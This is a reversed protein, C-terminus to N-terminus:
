EGEGRGEIKLELKNLRQRIKSSNDILLAQKAQVNKPGTPLQNVNGRQIQTLKNFAELYQVGAEVRASSNFTTRVQQYESDIASFTAPSITQQNELASLKADIQFLARGAPNLYQNIYILAKDAYDEADAQNEIKTETPGYNPTPVKDNGIVRTSAADLTARNVTNAAPVPIDEQKFEAPIKTQVLNVAFAGDRVASSFAAQVSGTADGPIPLGKAFAEASPLDKAANLAMGALGQSSLNKVPVGVAALGAVGKAMLDQQIQSQKPMNKLLDAASKIGDKGTWVAPSKIVDAFVNTGAALLARTGPKVYGATELQGADLGFSGLGKTNSLVSGAQNVLNKAQALVGNVEPVSMPGLGALAGAPNIGGAIKTFDATNIPSTVTSGSITKNITQISTVAVSGQIGAAGVLAAGLQSSGATGGLSRTVSSVAPGVAATLGPAIGALSGSLAGGSAGLGSAVSGLVSNFAGAGGNVGGRAFAADVSPIRGTALDVGSASLSSTFSGVNLSGTVGSQAQAVLAQAGALGDAAQTAASLTEGPKFGVLSGTDAQKKFIAFAQERTLGPPGKIAFTKASGDTNTPASGTAPTDTATGTTDEPPRPYGLQTLSPLGRRLREANTRDWVIYDDGTYTLDEDKTKSYLSTEFKTQTKGVSAKLQDLNFTFEAM